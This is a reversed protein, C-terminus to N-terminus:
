PTGFEVAGREILECLAALVALRPLACSEVLTGVTSTGDIASLVFGEGAGRPEDLLEELPRTLFLRQSADGIRAWYIEEVDADSLSDSFEVAPAADHIGSEPAAPRRTPVGQPEISAESERAYETMDFAPLLTIRDSQPEGRDSQPKERLDTAIERPERHEGM